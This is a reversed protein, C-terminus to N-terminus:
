SLTWKTKRAKNQLTTEDRAKGKRTGKAVNKLTADLPAVLKEQWLFVIKKELVKVDTQIEKFRKRLTRARYVDIDARPYGEDDVLPADIGIPPGGGPQNTTLESVIAEAESLLAKKQTDLSLLEQRM